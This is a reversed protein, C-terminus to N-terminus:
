PLAKTNSHLLDSKTGPTRTGASEKSQEDLALNLKLVNVGPDGLLALSPGDICQRILNQLEEPSLGRAQAVRGGQLEANKLSIDPDLGSGSATVADAPVPVELGLNNELRYREIRERM